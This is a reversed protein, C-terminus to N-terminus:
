AWEVGPRLRRSIESRLPALVHDWAHKGAVFKRGSESLASALEADELLDIVRRAFDAPSDAVLLDTGAVAELGELGISTTVSPVGLAMYELLKSQIGAGIRVPCVAVTAGRAAFGVDPVEGTVEVGDFGGLYERLKRDIRGIIRFRAEKRAEQVQPFIERVFHRAADSNQYSSLNGIFIITKGDPERQNELLASNVGMTCVMTSTASGVKGSAMLYQRDVGSVFVCLDFAGMIEREYRAVRRAEVLHLLSRFSFPNFHKRSREYNLSLADTMEILKPVDLSRAAEATRILHALVAGSRKAGERALSEFKGSRYYAVQLPAGSFLGLGCNFWSRWRPLLVRQVSRFVGDHPVAMSMEAETECLSILDLDVDRSLSECIKFIRVRDGGVVPYPFRPTLVLIRPRNSAGVLSVSAETVRGEESMM